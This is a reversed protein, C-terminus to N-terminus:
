IMYSEVETTDCCLNIVNKYGTEPYENDFGLLILTPNKGIDAKISPRLYKEASLKLKFIRDLLIKPM